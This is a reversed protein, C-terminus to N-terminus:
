SGSTLDLIMKSVTAYIIDSGLLTAIKDDDLMVPDGVEPILELNNLIAPGFEISDFDSLGLLKLAAIVNKLEAASVVEVAQQDVLINVLVTSPIVLIDTGLDKVLNGVTAAIIQSDFLTNLQVTTLALIKAVDFSEEECDDDSPDCVASVVILKIAKAISKLEAKLLYGQNDFVSDPVILTEGGLDQSLILTSITAVLIRSNFLTDITDDTLNSITGLGLNEFDVTGAVAAIANIALLINRLEGPVVINGLGDLEDLWVIDNPVSLVDLGEIGASGSLVNIMMNSILKSNLLLTLDIQSIANIIVSISGEQLDAISINADLIAGILQGIASFEAQWDLGAPITLLKGLTGEDNEVLPVLFVEVAILLLESTGLSDFLERVLDGDVEITELDGEGSVFGANNLIEFVTSLIVGLNEIETRWNVQNLQEIDLEVGSEFYDNAFEIAVPMASVVFNSQALLTFMQLIEDSTIDAPDQTTQFESELFIGGIAAFVALEHRLAVKQDGFPFSIVSDFLYLYLPVQITSDPQVAITITNFFGVVLNDNFANVLDQLSQISTALDDATPEALPIITYSAQYIVDRNPDHFLDTPEEVELLPAGIVLISQAVNVMGGLMILSVFVAIVGKFAGVVGGLLPNNSSGKTPKSIFISSLIGFVIKWLILGVTFYLITYVIKVVFIGLGTVLEGVGESMGSLQISDGAFTEIAVSVLQQFSTVSTLAPENPMVMAILQGIFPLEMGYLFGVVMDITFFFIGYFLVMSILSVLTKKLGRMLGGLVAFGVIALFGINFYLVLDTYSPM